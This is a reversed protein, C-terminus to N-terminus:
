QPVAVTITQWKWPAGPVPTPGPIPGPPPTPVAATYRRLLEQKDWDQLTRYSAVYPAMLCGNPGHELGLGHGFTEHFMVREFDMQNGAPNVAIVWQEGTDMMGELQRDDGGPLYNWGLVKGVGDIRGSKLLLDAEGPSSAETFTLAVVTSVQAAVSKMSQRINDTSLGGLTGGAWFWKLNPKNWRSLQGPGRANDPVQCFRQELTAMTKAGAVEDVLLGHYDQYRGVTESLEAETPDGGLPLWGYRILLDVLIRRDVNVM